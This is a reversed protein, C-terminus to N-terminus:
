NATEPGALRAFREGATRLLGAMALVEGATIPRGDLGGVFLRCGEDSWTVVGARRCETLCCTHRLSPLDVAAALIL